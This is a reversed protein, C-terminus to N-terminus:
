GLVEMDKRVRKAGADTAVAMITKGAEKLHRRAFAFAHRPTRGDGVLLLVAECVGLVQKFFTGSVHAVRDLRIFINDYSAGLADLDAKLMELETPAMAFRNAVPFWGHSGSRVTGIMEEAGEPPTFGEHSVIDLFFCQTGSMTATFDISDAFRSDQEVGPLRCGFITKASKGALLLKLAVMGIAEREETEPLAGRKPLSGLFEIEDYAAIEKGGRVKGFLFELLVALFLAGGAFVLAGGIAFVAKKLGFPGNDDSGAAREIQRLDNKLSGIAYSIGGLKEDIDHLSKTIDDRRAVIREYDMVISTLYTARKENDKIERELANRKEKLADLRTVCDALEGASREIQGVRELDISGAGKEHLLSELNAVLEAREQMKGSVKPNIDTYKERLLALEADIASIAEVRKRIAAANAMIAPGSDGVSAELKRKKLEENAIEVGLASDNRRQDSVLTNLAVLAESPALAGTQAKFKAEEADIDGIQAVLAARREKLSAEWIELDSKRFAVYEDILIDAYANVKMCAGKYTKSASSLIFLNGLRRGQEVKMDMTLCMQEMEDMPVRDAVRRKLTPRELITMLQKDSMPEIREIKKPSFILRTSAEYRKVSKSGRMWLYVSFVSALVVFVALFLPIWRLAICVAVKQFAILSRLRAREADTLEEEM